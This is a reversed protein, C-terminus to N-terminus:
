LKVAKNALDKRICSSKPDDFTIEIQVMDLAIRRIREVLRMADSHTHGADDLWTKDNFGTIDIVLCDGERSGILEGM